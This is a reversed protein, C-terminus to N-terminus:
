EPQKRHKEPHDDKPSRKRELECIIEAGTLLLVISLWIWTLFGVAGGLVGYTRNYSGLHEAYWSFLLTGLLWFVSTFASGWTIWRWPTRVRNPGYRYITSIVMSCVCFAVPWVLVNFATRLVGSYRHGIIFRQLAVSLYISGAALVLVVLTLLLTSLTLKLFSRTEATEFAINLGDLIAKVGGSASWIAVLFGAAFTLDFPVPKQSVLRQLEMNLVSLAGGPLFGSVMQLGEILSSREDFMTYLSVVCAIAPFMALLFFFTIGGAVALVRDESFEAYIRKTLARLTFTRREGDKELHLVTRGRSGLVTGIPDRSFRSLIV